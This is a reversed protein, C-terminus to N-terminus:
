ATLLQLNIIKKDNKFGLDLGAERAINWSWGGLVGQSVDTDKDFPTPRKHHYCHLM